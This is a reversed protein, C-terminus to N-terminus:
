EMDVSISHFPQKKEFEFVDTYLYVITHYKRNEHNEARHWAVIDRATQQLEDDNDAYRIISRVVCNHASDTEHVNKNMTYYEPSNDASYMFLRTILILGILILIMLGVPAMFNRLKM